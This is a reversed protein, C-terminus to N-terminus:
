SASAVQPEAVVARAGCHNCAETLRVRPDWSPSFRDRLRRVNRSEVLVVESEGCLSCPRGAPGLLHRERPTM